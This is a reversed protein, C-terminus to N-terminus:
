KFMWDRDETFGAVRTLTARPPPACAKLTFSKALEKIVDSGEDAIYYITHKLAKDKPTFMKWYAKDHHSAIVGNLKQAFISANDRNIEIATWSNM